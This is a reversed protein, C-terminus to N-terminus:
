PSGITGATSLSAVTTSVGTVLRRGAETLGSPDATLQRLAQSVQEARLAVQEDAYDRIQEDARLDSWLQGVSTFAFMGQLLRDLRRPGAKWAASYTRTHGPVVLPTLAHAAALKSHAVEHVLVEVLEATSQPLTTMVAGFADAYTASQMMGEASLPVVTLLGHKLEDARAPSLRCLLAWAEVFRDQLRGFGDDPIRPSLRAGPYGRYPDVDDVAVAIRRRGHSARMTRVPVWLPGSLDAAGIQAPEALALAGLTPVMCVGDVPTIDIRADPLGTRVAAALALPALVHEHRQAPDRICAALWGAVSPSALLRNVTDLDRDRAQSLLRIAESQRVRSSIHKLLLLSRSIRSRYLSGVVAPAPVALALHDFEARRLNHTSAHLEAM